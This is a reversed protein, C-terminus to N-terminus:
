SGCCGGRNKESLWLVWSSQNTVQRVRGSYSPIWSGACHTQVSARWTKVASEDVLVDRLPKLLRQKLKYIEELPRQMLRTIERSPLPDTRGLVITLYLREPPPLAAIAGTLVDLAASLEEDRQAQLLREEPNADRAIM